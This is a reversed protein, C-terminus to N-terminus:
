WYNLRQLWWEGAPQFGLKAYVRAAPANAPLYFLGIEEVGAAFLATCLAHVCHASLGRNRYAPVTAVGGIM